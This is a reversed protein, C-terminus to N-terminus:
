KKWQKEIESDLKDAADVFGNHGYKKIYESREKKWKSEYSSKSKRKKFILHWVIFSFLLFLVPYEVSEDLYSLGTTLFYSTFWKM